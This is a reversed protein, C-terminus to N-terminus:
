TRVASREPERGRYGPPPNPLPGSTSNGRSARAPRRHLRRVWRPATPTSANAHLGATQREVGEGVRGRLVPALSRLAWDGRIPAVGEDRTDTHRPIPDYVARPPPCPRQLSWAATSLPDPVISGDRGRDGEDASM